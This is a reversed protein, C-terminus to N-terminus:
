QDLPGRHDCSKCEIHTKDGDRGREDPTEIPSIDESHCNPCTEDKISARAIELEKGKLGKSPKRNSLEDAFSKFLDEM